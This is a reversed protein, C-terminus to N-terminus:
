GDSKNQGDKGWDVDRYYKTIHGGSLIKFVNVKGSDKLEELKRRAHSNSLGTIKSFQDASIAGEPPESDMKYKLAWRISEQWEDHNIM